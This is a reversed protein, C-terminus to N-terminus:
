IWNIMSNFCAFHFLNIITCPFPCDQYGKETLGRGVLIICNIHDSGFWDIGNLMQGLDMCRTLSKIITFKKLYEVKLIYIKNVISTLPPVASGDVGESM